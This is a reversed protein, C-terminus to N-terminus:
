RGRTYHMNGINKALGRLELRTLAMNVRMTELRVLVTLKDIHIGERSLLQYIMLEDPDLDPPAVESVLHSTLANTGTGLEDLIDQVGTVLRAGEKLLTHTGISTPSFISGPVAFVARNYDLALRATILSGSEEAAEIVITGQCMGAMIRNRAPFTGVSPPTGPALESLLAGCELLEHSLALHTQPSISADDIGSGLVALTTGRAELTSEHAIKDIGFALGSVVIYGSQSLSRALESAAQKGYATFKRSGVIAILPRENWKRFTGRTYLLAPADPIEALLIPFTSDSFPIVAIGSNRLTLAEQDPDLTTRALAAREFRTDTSVGFWAEKPAGWAVEASGFHSVLLRLTKAGVGPLRNLLHFALAENM